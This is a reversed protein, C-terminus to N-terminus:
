FTYGATMSTSSDSNEALPDLPKSDHNYLYQLGIKFNKIVEYDLNLRGDFRQRGSVSLSDYYIAQGTLKLGSVPVGIALDLVVPIEYQVDAVDGNEAYEKQMTIGTLLNLDMARNHVIRRGGGTISVWRDSIGTSPIKQYQFYQLALWKGQAAYLGGLGADIRDTGSDAPTDTNVLSFHQFIRYRDTAYTILENLSLRRVDSQSTYSYGIGVYGDLKELLTRDVRKLRIVDSMPVVSEGSNTVILLNGTEVDPRIRGVIRERNVVDVHFDANAARIGAIEHAKIEVDGIGAIEFDIMGLKAGSLKGVLISGNKMTIVDAAAPFADMSTANGTDGASANTVVISAFGVIPWWILRFRSKGM